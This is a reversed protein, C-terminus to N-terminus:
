PWGHETMPPVCLEKGTGLQCRLSLVQVSKWTLDSFTAVERSDGSVTNAESLPKAYM